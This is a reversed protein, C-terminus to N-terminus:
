KARQIINRGIGTIRQLQKVSAGQKKLSVLLNIQMQKELQQFSTPDKHGTEKLIIEVVEDDTVRHYPTDEPMEVFTTAEDDITDNVFDILEEMTNSYKALQRHLINIACVPFYIPNINIYENWSSWPYDAVRTTIGAKVPNRHIYRILRWFYKYDNCPESRFRDHFLTSERGYKHNYYYAYSVALRKISDGISETKEKILLHIHNSMLCWAFITCYSEIPNGNEDKPMVLQLLTDIFRYRDDDDHFIDQRNIGRLMVHYMGTGSKERASRTM